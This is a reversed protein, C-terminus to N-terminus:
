VSFSTERVVDESGQQAGLSQSETRMSSAPFSDPLNDLVHHVSETLTSFLFWNAQFPYSPTHMPNTTALSSFYSCAGPYAYSDLRHPVSLPYQLIIFSHSISIISHSTCTSPYPHFFTPSHANIDHCLFPNTPTSYFLHQFSLTLPCVRPTTLSFTAPHLITMHLTAHPMPKKISMFSNYPVNIGYGMPKKIFVFHWIWIGQDNFRAFMMVADDKM